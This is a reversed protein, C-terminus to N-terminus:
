VHARGIKSGGDVLKTLSFTISGQATGTGTGTGTGSGGTTGSSTADTLGGTNCGSLMALFTMILVPMLMRRFPNTKKSM